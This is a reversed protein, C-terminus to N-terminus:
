CSSFGREYSPLCRLSRRVIWALRTQKQLMGECSQGGEQGHSKSNM